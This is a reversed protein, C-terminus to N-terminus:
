GMLLLLQHCYSTFNELMPTLCDAMSGGGVTKAIQLSKM